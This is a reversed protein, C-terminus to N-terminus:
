TRGGCAFCRAAREPKPRKHPKTSTVISGVDLGWRVEEALPCLLEATRESVLVGGTSAVWSPPQRGDKGASYALLAPHPPPWQDAGRVGPCSSCRWAALCCRWSVHTRSPRSPGGQAMLNHICVFQSATPGCPPCPSRAGPGRDSYGFSCLTIIAASLSSRRMPFFVKFRGVARSVNCQSTTRQAAPQGACRHAAQSCALWRPDLRLYAVVWTKNAWRNKHVQLAM